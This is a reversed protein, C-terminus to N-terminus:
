SSLGNKKAKTKKENKDSHKKKLTVGGFFTRGARWERMERLVDVRADRNGRELFSVAAMGGEVRVCIAEGGVQRQSVAADASRGSPLNDPPIGYTLGM